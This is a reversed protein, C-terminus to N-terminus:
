RGPTPAATQGLTPAKVTGECVSAFLQSLTDLNKM